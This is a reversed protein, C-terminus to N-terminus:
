ISRVVRLDAWLAGLCVVWRVVSHAATEDAKKAGRWEASDVVSRVDM